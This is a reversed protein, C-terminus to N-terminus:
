YVHLPLGIVGVLLSLNRCLRGGIGVDRRCLQRDPNNPIELGRCPNGARHPALTLPRFLFSEKSRMPPKTGCHLLCQESVDPRRERDPNLSLHGFTSHHSIGGYPNLRHRLYVLPHSAVAKLWAQVLVPTGFIKEPELKGGM